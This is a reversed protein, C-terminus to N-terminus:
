PQQGLRPLIIQILFGILEMKAGPKEVFSATVSYEPLTDSQIHHDPVEFRQRPQKGVALRLHPESNMNLIGRLRAMNSPM